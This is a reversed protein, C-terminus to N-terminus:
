WLNDCLLSFNYISLLIIAAGLKLKIIKLANCIQKSVNNQSTDLDIAIEKHTLYEKRSMEFIRKMKPPLAQIQKEIYANLEKERIMHDTPEYINNAMYDKLSDLYKTKVKEHAFLDFIRNRAAKFLYGALNSSPLNEDRKFWLVSFLDQVIDKAQEENGLKRNTHVFILHFYRHYIENFALQDSETLRQVLESDSFKKYDKMLRQLNISTLRSFIIIKM